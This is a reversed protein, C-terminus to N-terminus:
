QGAYYRIDSEVRRLDDDNYWINKEIYDHDRYMSNLSAKIRFVSDAMDARLRPDCSDTRIQMDKLLYETNHLNYECQSRRELLYDRQRLLSDRLSLISRPVDRDAAEAAACSVIHASLLLLAAIAIEQMKIKSM